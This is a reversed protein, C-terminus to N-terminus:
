ELQNVDKQNCDFTKEDNGMLLKDHNLERHDAAIKDLTRRVFVPWIPDTSTSNEVKAYILDDEEVSIQRDM